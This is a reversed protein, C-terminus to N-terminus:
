KGCHGADCNQTISPRFETQSEQRDTLQRVITMVSM